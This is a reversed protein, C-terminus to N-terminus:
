DRQFFEVVASVAPLVFGLVILTYTVLMAQDIMRLDKTKASSSAV